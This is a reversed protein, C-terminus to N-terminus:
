AFLASYALEHITSAEAAMRGLLVCEVEESCEMNLSGLTEQFKRKSIVGSPEIKALARKLNVQYSQMFKKVELELHSNATCTPYDRLLAKLISKVIERTNENFDDCYVFDTQVDEILYRALLQAKDKPLSFPPFSLLHQVERMNIYEAEWEGKRPDAEFLARVRSFPFNSNVLKLRVM